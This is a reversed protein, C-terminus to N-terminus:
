RGRYRSRRRIKDPSHVRLYDDVHPYVGIKEKKLLNALMSKTISPELLKMEDLANEMGVLLVEEGKPFVGIFQLKKLHVVCDTSEM